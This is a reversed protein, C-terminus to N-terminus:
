ASDSLQSEARRKCAVREQEVFERKILDCAADVKDNFAREDNASLKELVQDAECCDTDDTIAIQAEMFGELLAAGFLQEVAARCGLAWVSGEMDQVTDTM